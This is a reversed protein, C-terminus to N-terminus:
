LVSTKSISMIKMIILKPVLLCFATWSINILLFIVYQFLYPFPLFLLMTCEALWYGKGEKVTEVNCVSNFVSMRVKMGWDTRECRGEKKKRSFDLSLFFPPETYLSVPQESCWPVQSWPFVLASTWGLEVLATRYPRSLGGGGSPWPLPLRTRM